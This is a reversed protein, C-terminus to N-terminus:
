PRNSFIWSFYKRVDKIDMGYGLYRGDVWIEFHLHIGYNKGEAEGMLGSNGCWGIVDGKSVSTGKKVGSKIGSLHNYATVVGNGHDIWVQRGGFSRKVFTRPHKQYFASQNKWEEPTMPKYDWDARIVTGRDAALIPTKRTVAIPTYSDDNHYAFVDLGVHVGGRYGRPSNPYASDADPLFGNKVPFCLGLLREDFYQLKTAGMYLEIEAIAAYGGFTEGAPIYIRFASADIGGLDIEVKDRYSGWPISFLDLCSVTQQEDLRVNAFDFWKGEYLFQLKLSKVTKYNDHRGPYIVVKTMLRKTDFDIEIWHPSHGQQSVWASERDSDIAKKGDHNKSYSSSTAFYLRQISNAGFIVSEKQVLNRTPVGAPRKPASAVILLAACAIKLM